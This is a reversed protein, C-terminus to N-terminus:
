ASTLALRADPFFITILSSLSDLERVRILIRTPVKPSSDMDCWIRSLILFCMQVSAFADGSDRPGEIFLAEIRKKRLGGQDKTLAEGVGGGMDPLAMDMVVIDVKLM